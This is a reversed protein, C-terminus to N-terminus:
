ISRRIVQRPCTKGAMGDSAYRNPAVEAEVAEPGFHLVCVQELAGNNRWTRLMQERYHISSSMVAYREPGIVANWKEMFEASRRASSQASRPVVLAVRGGSREEVTLTRAFYEDIQRLQDALIANLAEEESPTFALLEACERAIRGDRLM